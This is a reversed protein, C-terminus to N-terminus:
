SMRSSLKLGHFGYSSSSSSSLHIYRVENVVYNFLCGLITGIIQNVFVIRPPVKLYHGVKLDGAMLGAQHLTNFGLTKFYM